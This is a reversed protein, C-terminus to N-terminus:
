IDNMLFQEIRKGRKVLRVVIYEERYRRLESM